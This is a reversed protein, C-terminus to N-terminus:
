FSNFNQYEAEQHYMKITDNRGHRICAGVMAEEQSEYDYNLSSYPM